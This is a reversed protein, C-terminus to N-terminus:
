VTGSSLPMLGTEFNVTLNVTVTVTNYISQDSVCLFLEQTFFFIDTGTRGFFQNTQATLHHSRGHVSDKCAM